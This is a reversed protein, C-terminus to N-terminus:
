SIWEQKIFKATEMLRRNKKVGKIAHLVSAHSRNFVFGLEELTADTENRAIYIATWRAKVHEVKRSPSRMVKVPVRYVRAVKQAIESIAIQEM